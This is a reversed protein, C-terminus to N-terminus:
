QHSTQWLIVLGTAVWLYPFFPLRTQGDRRFNNALAMISAMFITLTATQFDFTLWSIAFFDLDGKGLWQDTFRCKNLLLYCIIVMLLHYVTPPNLLLGTLLLGLLGLVPVQLQVADTVSLALLILIFLLQLLFQQPTRTEYSLVGVVGTMLEALPYLSSIKQRCNHCRGIQLLWGLCPLLQWWILTIACYDCQSRALLIPQHTLHRNTVCMVTSALTSSM